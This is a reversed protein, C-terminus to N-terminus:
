NSLLGKLLSEDSEQCLPSVVRLVKYKEGLDGGPGVPYLNSGKLAWGNIEAVCIEREHRSLLVQRWGISTPSDETCVKILSGITNVNM